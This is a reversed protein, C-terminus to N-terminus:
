VLASSAARIAAPIALSLLLTGSAVIVHRNSQALGTHVAISGLFIYTGLVVASAYGALYRTPSWERLPLGIVVSSSLAAFLVFFWFIAPHIPLRVLYTGVGVFEIFQTAILVGTRDGLGDADDTVLMVACAVADLVVAVYLVITPIYDAILFTPGQDVAPSNTLQDTTTPPAFADCTALINEDMLAISDRVFCFMTLATFVVVAVLSAFPYASPIRSTARPLVYIFGSSMFVGGIALDILDVLDTQHLWISLVFAAVKSVLSLAAYILKWVTTSLKM